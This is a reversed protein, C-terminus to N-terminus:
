RAGVDLELEGASSGDLDVEKRGWREWARATTRGVEGGRELRWQGGKLDVVAMWGVARDDRLSRRPTRQPAVGIADLDVLTLLQPSVCKKSDRGM